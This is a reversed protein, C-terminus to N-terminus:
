RWCWRWRRTHGIETCHRTSRILKAPYWSCKTRLALWLWLSPCRRWRLSLATGGCVLNVLSVLTFFVDHIVLSGYATATLNAIVWFGWTMLSLSQAGDHSRWVVVIQPIYTFVQAANTVWTFGPSAARFGPRTPTFSTSCWTM